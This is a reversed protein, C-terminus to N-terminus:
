SAVLRRLADIDAAMVTIGAAAALARAAKNASNGRASAAASRIVAQQDAPLAAWTTKDAKIAAAYAAARAHSADIDHVAAYALRKITPVHLPEGFRPQNYKQAAIFAVAEAHSYRRLHCTTALAGAEQHNLSM